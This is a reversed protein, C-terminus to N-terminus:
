LFRNTWTALGDISRTQITIKGKGEVRTVLGEKSLFSQVLGGALQAKLTLNDDYAVLHSSDVIYSGNVEKEVLGGYAGYWVRGTGTVHLKFMGEGGIFSAFGAFKVGLKLGPTSCIYAGPQFSVSGNNLDVFDTDGPTGQVLSVRRVGDTNNTFTNVFLSEGGLVGKAIASFFGGNLSAKMDLDAAMSSMADAEAVISEGPELDINMYAFSPKGLIESQM